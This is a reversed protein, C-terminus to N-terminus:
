PMKTIKELFICGGGANFWCPMESCKPDEVRLVERKLRQECKEVWQQATEPNRETRSIIVASAGNHLYQELTGLLCDIVSPDYVVDAGIVIDGEPQPTEGWIYKVFRINESRELENRQFTDGLRSVVNSDGDTVTLSKPQITSWKKAIGLSVLGTGAGLEVIRKGQLEAQLDGSVLLVLLLAANWTRLGTTGSGSILRPTEEIEIWNDQEDIPYRLLDPQTPPLATAALLECYLEYTEELVEEGAEELRKIYEALFLKTYYPNHKAVEALHVFISNQAQENLIGSVDYSFVEKPVARLWICAKALETTIPPM